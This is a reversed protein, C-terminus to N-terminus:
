QKAAGDAPTINEVRVPEDRSPLAAATDLDIDTDDVTIAAALEPSQPLWKALQRFVTKCGMAEYDTIWAGTKPRGNRDRIRNVEGISMVRFDHGGEGYTAWAYFAKIPRDAGLAPRHKLFPELGYAFEFEDGDRVAHAGMSSILGSQRALKVMGRYGIFLVVKGSKPVLYAEGMARGPELGLQAATMLAALFSAPDCNELEPTLRVESLAIRSMREASIHKPLVRAFEGKMNDLLKRVTDPQAVEAPPKQQQAVQARLSDTTPM